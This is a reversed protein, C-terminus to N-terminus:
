GSPDEGERSLVSDACHLDKMQGGSPSGRSLIVGPHRVEGVLRQVLERSVRGTRGGDCAAGRVGAVDAGLEAAWAIDRAQLKGAVAAFLECDHVRAIWTSLEDETWLACLGPGAKDATDILIGTAGSRAAIEILRRADVTEDASADAYAVAVVRAGASANVTTEILERVRGASSAPAFGIKVIQAGRAAFSSARRAASLVDTLDGLAASLPRRGGVVAGIDAFVDLEVAGLAGASPDKADIIDAGACLATEADNASTVSVLLKM